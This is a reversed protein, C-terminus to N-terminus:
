AVENPILDGDNKNWHVNLLIYFVEGFDDNKDDLLTPLNKGFVPSLEKLDELSPIQDLLKKFLALPFTINAVNCNFLSLGCPVGFFSYRKKEFKPKVPFWNYSAKKPCM